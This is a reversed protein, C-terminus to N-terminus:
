ARSYAHCMTPSDSPACHRSIALVPPWTTAAMHWAAPRAHEGAHPPARMTWVNCTATRLHLTRCAVARAVVWTRCAVARRTRAVAVVAAPNHSHRSRLAPAPGASAQEMDPMGPMYGHPHQAALEQFFHNTSVTVPDFLRVIPLCSAVEDADRKNLQGPSDHSTKHPM